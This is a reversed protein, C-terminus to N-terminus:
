PRLMKPAEAWFYAKIAEWREPTLGEPYAPDKEADVFYTLARLVHYLDPEALQFRNLYAECAVRLTIGSGLTERLDWFDRRIGRRAIAALKMTALDLLSAVPRGSPGRLLPRLPPYQYRVLDVPVGEVRVKLVADTIALVRLTPISAALAIRVGELDVAPDTSFLDLDVSRRHGLHFAAASGGALYFGELGRIASLRDLARLQEEALRTREGV